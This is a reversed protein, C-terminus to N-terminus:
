DNNSEDRVLERIKKLILVMGYTDQRCYNKLANYNKKYELDNYHPFSAYTVLAAVGDKVILDEYSLDSFVKLTKKISYSGNLDKHYYNIKKADEDSFGLDLFLEKKNRVIYLLDFARNRITQLEKEYQPFCESLRKLVTKEFSINQAFMMGGKEFEIVQCLGKILQEREDKEFSSALFEYHNKIEDCLGPKKEVHISFQFPSQDYCKEGRFRPLPCPFTEFDLHYLPYELKELIIKIKKKNIYPKDELLVKRQILHNSNTIWKEPVDLMKTMGMNVLDIKKYSTDDSVKFTSNNLYTFVSNEAPVHSFCVEYFKCVTNKNRECYRGMKCSKADMKELYQELMKKDALVVDQLEETIKTMDFFVIIDDSYVPKNKDYKGDFVYDHNLVALYYNAKKLGTKEIIMRQVALDYVYRGVKDYRNRIKNKKKHYDELKTELLLDYGEIEDKFYYVGNQLNFLPFKEKERYGTQIGKLFASSTTAKVEVININESENYIDVYCLYKVDNDDFSFKKQAFTKLDYYTNGGFFDAAKKGALIEIENYYPLMVELQPNEVDILDIEEGLEDEDYMKELLEKIRLLREEERYEEYSVDANLREKKIKELTVYRSCRTYNIFKTKTVAM